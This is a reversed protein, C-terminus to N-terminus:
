QNKMEKTDNSKKRNKNSQDNNKIKNIIDTTHMKDLGEIEPVMVFKINREQCFRAVKRDYSDRVNHISNPEVKPINSM